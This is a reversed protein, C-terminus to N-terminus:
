SPGPPKPHRALEIAVARAVMDRLSQSLDRRLESVLADAARALVPGLVQHVRHEFMADIQRDLDSLVRQVVQAETYTPTVVLPV